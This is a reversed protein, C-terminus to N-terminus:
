TVRLHCVLENNIHKMWKHSFWHSFLVNCFIDVRLTTSRISRPFLNLWVATARGTLARFVFAYLSIHARLKEIQKTQHNWRTLIVPTHPFISREFVFVFVDKKITQINIPIWIKSQLSGPPLKHPDLTHIKELKHIIHQMMWLLHWFDAQKELASRTDLAEILTM